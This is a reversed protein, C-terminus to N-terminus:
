VEVVVRVELARLLWVEWPSLSEGQRYKPLSSYRVVFGRERRTIRLM